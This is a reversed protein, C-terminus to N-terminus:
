LFMSSPRREKVFLEMYSPEYKEINQVSDVLQSIISRTSKMGFAKEIELYMSEIDDIASLSQKICEKSFETSTEANTVTHNCDKILDNKIRFMETYRKTVSLTYDYVGDSINKLLMNINHAPVDLMSSGGLNHTQIVPFIASISRQFNTFIKHIDDTVAIYRKNIEMLDKLNKVAYIEKQIEIVSTLLTNACNLHAKITKWREEPTKPKEDAM